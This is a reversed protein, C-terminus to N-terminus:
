NGTYIQSVVHTMVRVEHIQDNNSQQHQTIITQYVVCTFSALDYGYVFLCYTMFQAVLAFRSEVWGGSETSYM